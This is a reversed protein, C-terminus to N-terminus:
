PHVTRQPHSGVRMAALSPAHSGAPTPAAAYWHSTTAIDDRRVLYEGEQAWGLDQVTVRLRQSFNVPDMEHWRYMGFRQQSSYLGDPRIVQHLGLYHTSYEVYGRGPVEFDWAGGFYDETGTGCITPFEEDDDVFFKLEGEGWWGPHHVGVAMYVGLYKGAGVVDCIEHLGGSVPDSRRWTSHFYMADDPVDGEAYDLYYYIVADRDRVNELTVRARTRFPMPWYANLACYPASVVFKSSLTAYEEWGLGFFDGLPVEVSPESAGDWYFRLVLGRWWEPRVSIWFHQLVGPGSADALTVTSGAPVNISPSVKWTKGLSRAAHAGTGETARGGMSPAGTPNEASISRSRLSSPLSLGWDFSPM